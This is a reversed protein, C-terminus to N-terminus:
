SWGMLIACMAGVESVKLHDGQSGTVTEDICTKMEKAYPRLKDITGLSRVKRDGLIAAAFDGSTALRNSGSAAKWTAGNAGHLTGGSHWQAYAGLVVFLLVFTVATITKGIM